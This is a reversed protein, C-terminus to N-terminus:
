PKMRVGLPIKYYNEKVSFFAVENFSMSKQMLDHCDDYLNPQFGFIIKLFYYGNRFNRKRNMQKIFMLEESM